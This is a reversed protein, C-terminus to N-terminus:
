KKTGDNRQSVLLQEIFLETKGKNKETLSRYNKLLANEDPTLNAANGVAKEDTRGALYDVSVGYFDALSIARSLPLECEGKEYRGYYQATTRLYDAIETQTKDSDERLDRIRKYM